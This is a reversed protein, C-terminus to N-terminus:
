MPEKTVSTSLNDVNEVYKSFDTESLRCEYLIHRHVVVSHLDYTESLQVANACLSSQILIGRRDPYVDGEAVRVVAVGVFTHPQCVQAALQGEFGRVHRTAAEVGLDEHLFHARLEDLLNEIEIDDQLNVMLVDVSLCQKESRLKGNLDTSQLRDDNVAVTKVRTDGHLDTGLKVTCVDNEAQNAAM